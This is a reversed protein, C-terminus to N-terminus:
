GNQEKGTEAGRQMMAIMYALMQTSQMQSKPSDDRKKVIKVCALPGHTM